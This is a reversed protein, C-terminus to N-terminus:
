VLNQLLTRIQSQDHIARLPARATWLVLILLFRVGAALFLRVGFLVNENGRSPPHNVEAGGMGAGTRIAGNSSCNFVPAKRFVANQKLVTTKLAKNGLTGVQQHRQFFGLTLLQGRLGFGDVLQDGSIPNSNLMDDATDFTASDNGIDKTVDFATKVIQDHFDSASEVVESRVGTASQCSKM